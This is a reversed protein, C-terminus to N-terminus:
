KKLKDTCEILKKEFSPLKGKYMARLCMKWDDYHVRDFDKNFESFHIYCRMYIHKTPTAEPIEYAFMTRLHNWFIHKKKSSEKQRLEEIKQNNLKKKAEYFSDTLKKFEMKYNNHTCKKTFINFADGLDKALVQVTCFLFLSIIMVIKNLM